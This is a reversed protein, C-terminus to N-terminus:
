SILSNIRGFLYTHYSHTHIVFCGLNLQELLSTLECLGRFNLNSLDLFKPIVAEQSKDYKSFISASHQIGRPQYVTYVNSNDTM